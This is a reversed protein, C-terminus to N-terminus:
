VFADILELDDEAESALQTNSCTSTRLSGSSYGAFVFYRQGRKFDYGCDGRSNGTMVDVTKQTAALGKVTREIEFRVTRGDFFTVRDSDRIDVVRGVFVVDSQTLAACPGPRKMCECATANQAFLGLLAVTAICIFFYRRVRCVTHLTLRYKKMQMAVTAKNPKNAWFAVAHSHIFRGPGHAARVCLSTTNTPRTTSM